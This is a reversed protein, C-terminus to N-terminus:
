VFGLGSLYWVNIGSAVRNRDPLSLHQGLLRSFLGLFFGLHLGLLLSLQLSEFVNRGPFSLEHGISLLSIDFPLKSCSSFIRWKIFL